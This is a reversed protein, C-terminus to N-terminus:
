IVDVLLQWLVRDRRKVRLAMHQCAALCRQVNFIGVKPTVGLDMDLAKVAEFLWAMHPRAFALVGRFNSVVPLLLHPIQCTWAWKSL